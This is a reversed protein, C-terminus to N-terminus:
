IEGGAEAARAARAAAREAAACLEEVEDAAFVRRRIFFGDREWARREHPSLALPGQM